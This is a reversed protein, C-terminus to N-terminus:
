WAFDFPTDPGLLSTLESRIDENIQENPHPQHRCNYWIIWHSGGELNYPFHNEQFKFHLAEEGGEEYLASDAVKM